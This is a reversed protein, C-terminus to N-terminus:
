LTCSKDICQKGLADYYLEAGEQSYVAGGGGGWGWGKLLVLVPM